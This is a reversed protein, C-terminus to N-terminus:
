GLEAYLADHQAGAIAPTHKHEWADRAREGQARRAAEDRCLEVLARALAEDDRPPVLVGPLEELPGGAALV